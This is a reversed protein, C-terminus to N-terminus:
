GRVIKLPLKYIQVSSLPRNYVKKYNLKNKIFSCVQSNKCNIDLIIFEGKKNVVFEVVTKFNEEVDFDTKDLLKIINARIQEKNPNKDIGFVSINIFIFVIFLILKRM